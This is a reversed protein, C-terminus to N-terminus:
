EVGYLSYVEASYSIHDHLFHVCFPWCLHILTAKGALSTGATNSAFGNGAVTIPMGIWWFFELPFSFINVFIVFTGSGLKSVNSLM